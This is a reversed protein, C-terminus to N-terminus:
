SRPLCYAVLSGMSHGVVVLDQLALTESVEVIWDSMAEVSTLAPGVEEM